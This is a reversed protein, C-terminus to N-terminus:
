KNELANMSAKFTEESIKGEKLLKILENIMQEKSPSENEKYITQSPNNEDTKNYNTDKSSLIQFNDTMSEILENNSIRIFSLTYVYIGPKFFNESFTFFNQNIRSNNKNSVADSYVLKGTLQEFIELHVHYPYGYELGFILVFSENEYFNRRLDNIEHFEICNNNNMDKGWKATFSGNSYQDIRKYGLLGINVLSKVHFHASLHKSHKQFSSIFQFKKKHNRYAIIVEPYKILQYWVKSVVDQVYLDREELEYENLLDDLYWDHDTIFYLLEDTVPKNWRYELDNINFPPLMISTGSNTNSKVYDMYGPQQNLVFDRAENVINVSIPYITGDSLAYINGNPDKVLQIHQGNNTLLNIQTRGAEAVNIEHKREGTIELIDGIIRLAEQADPDIRNVREPNSLLFKAVGAGITEWKQGIAPLFSLLIVTLFLVKIKM